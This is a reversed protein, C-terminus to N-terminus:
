LLQGILRPSDMQRDSVRIAASNATAKVPSIVWPTGPTAHSSGKAGRRPGRPDEASLSLAM